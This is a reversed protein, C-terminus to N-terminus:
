AQGLIKLNDTDKAVYGGHLLLDQQHALGAGALCRHPADDEGVVDGPLCNM